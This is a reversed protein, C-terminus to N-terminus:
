CSVMYEVNDPYLNIYSRGLTSIMVRGRDVLPYKDPATVQVERFMTRFVVVLSFDRHKIFVVGQLRITPTSTYNWAHKVEATSLLSHYAESELWTVGMSSQTPCESARPTAISVEFLFIGQTKLSLYLLSLSHYLLKRFWLQLLAITSTTHVPQTTKTKM